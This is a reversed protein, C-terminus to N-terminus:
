AQGTHEHGERDLIELIVDGVIPRGAFISAIRNLKLELLRGEENVWLHGGLIGICEIYGGVVKQMEELSLEDPLSKSTGNVHIVTYKM